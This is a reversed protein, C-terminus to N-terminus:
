APQDTNVYKISSAQSWTPAAIKQHYATWPSGFREPIMAATGYAKAANVYANTDFNGNGDFIGAPDQSPLFEGAQSAAPDGPAPNSLHVPKSASPDRPAPKSSHVPKPSTVTPAAQLRVTQAPKSAVPNSPASKSLRVPNLAASNSPAPKSRHVPKSSSANRPAPKSRHVPKSAARDRPAPRALRVPNSAPADTPAAQSRAAGVWLFVVLATVCFNNLKRKFSM